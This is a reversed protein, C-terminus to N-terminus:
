LKIMEHLTGQDLGSVMLLQRIALMCDKHVAAMVEHAHPMLGQVKVVDDDFKQLISQVRDKNGTEMADHIIYSFTACMSPFTYATHQQPRQRQVYQPQHQEPQALSVHDYCTV